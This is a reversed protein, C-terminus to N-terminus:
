HFILTDKTVTVEKIGLIELITELTKINMLRTGSLWRSVTGETVNMKLALDKRTMGNIKLLRKILDAFIM